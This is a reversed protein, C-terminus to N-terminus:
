QIEFYTLMEDGTFYRKVVGSEIELGCYNGTIDYEPNFLGIRGYDLRPAKRELYKYEPDTVNWIRHKGDKWWWSTIKYRDRDVDFNPFYCNGFSYEIEGIVKGKMLLKRKYVGSDGNIVIWLIGIIVIVILM